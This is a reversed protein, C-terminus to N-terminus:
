WATQQRLFRRSSWRSWRTKVGAPITQTEDFPEDFGPVQECQVRIQIDGRFEADGELVKNITLSGPPPTRLIPVAAYTNVIQVTPTTAPDAVVEAPVGTTTVSVSSKSGDVPETVTCTTGPSLGGVVQATPTVDPAFTITEERGNSCTVAITVPGRLSADGELVKDIVFAGTGALQGAAPLGQVVVALLAGAALM